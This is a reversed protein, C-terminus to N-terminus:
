EPQMQEIFKIDEILYPRQILLGYTFQSRVLSLIYALYKKAPISFSRSFTRCLLGLM